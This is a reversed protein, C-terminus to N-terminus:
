KCCRAKTGTACCNGDGCRDRKTERWGKKCEGRCFPASGEWYCVASVIPDDSNPTYDPVEASPDPSQDAVAAAMAMATFSLLIAFRM